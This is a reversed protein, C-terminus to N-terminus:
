GTVACLKLLPRLSAHAEFREVWEAIDDATVAGLVPAALRRFKALLRPWEDVAPAPQGVDAFGARRHGGPGTVTVRAQFETLGPTYRVQVRELLRGYAEDMLRDDSFTDPDGTDIGLLALATTARLSFKAELGTAPHEIGCVDALSPASQVEVAVIQRPDFAADQALGIAAEIAAHTSHCAAHHKFRISDLRGPALHEDPGGHTALFGSPGDLAEAADLGTGSAALLACRLGNAAAQGVQLAKAPTGFASRLGSAQIAALGLARSTQATDLSLLSACGAAASFTGLTATAHWGRAYHAPNCWAGVMCGTRMGVCFAELVRRPPQDQSEALALLAPLLPATPHGSFSGISTDDYDLAHGAIGNLMAADALSATAGTGILVIDGGTAWSAAARRATAAVPERTGRLSVGLWDLVCQRVMAQEDFSPQRHRDEVTFRTLQSGRRLHPAGGNQEYHSSDTAIIALSFGLAISTL